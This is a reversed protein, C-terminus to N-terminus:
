ELTYDGEHAHRMYAALLDIEAQIDDTSAMENVTHVYRTPLSVTISPIGERSLQMAAGDTGGRPLVEMQHKINNDRALQKMHQVLKHNSIMSSDMVKIAVGEGLRTVAADDSAGPIDMALTIDLGIGIDPQVAFAATRAGRLGVEEQTTAVLVLESATREDGLARVAEIMLFVSMRDDFAKGFVNGGIWETTRDMTVMDGIEVKEKVTEGPLGVDVFVQEVKPPKIEDATLLHIPKSEFAMAGRLVEGSHTHVFCRQAPLTRPDFGGVTQLRIFGKDDIHKVIFGIEDMHAAFMVRPGDGSGNRRAILNGMADVSIEDVLPELERRVIERVAEERGPIGPAECLEKLLDFNVEAM